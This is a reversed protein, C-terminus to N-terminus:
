WWDNLPFSFFFHEKLMTFNLLMHFYHLNTCFCSFICLFVDLRIPCVQVSFDLWVGSLKIRTRDYTRIMLYSVPIYSSDSIQEGVQEKSPSCTICASQTETEPEKSKTLGAWHLKRASPLCPRQEAVKGKGHMSSAGEENQFSCYLYHAWPLM